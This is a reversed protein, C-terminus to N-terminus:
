QKGYHNVWNINEGVTCLIERKEVDKGVKKNLKKIIAMRVTTLRIESHSQNANRLHHTISLM